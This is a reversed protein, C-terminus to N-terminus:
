AFNPVSYVSNKRFRYNTDIKTEKRGEGIVIGYQGKLVPDSMEVDTISEM